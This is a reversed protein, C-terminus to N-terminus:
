LTGSSSNSNSRHCATAELGQWIKVAHCMDGASLMEAEGPVLVHM